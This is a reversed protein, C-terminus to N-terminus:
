LRDEPDIGDVGPLIDILHGTEAACFLWDPPLTVRNRSMPDTTHQWTRGDRSAYIGGGQTEGLREPASMALGPRACIAAIPQLQGISRQPLGCDVNAPRWRVDAQSLDLVHVGTGHTAALVLGDMFAIDRCSEGNWSDFHPIVAPEEDEGTVPYEFCGPTNEAGGPLRIGAWIRARGAHMQTRLVRFMRKEQGRPGISRYSEGLGDRASHFLGRQDRAVMVSFRHASGPPNPATAIAWVAADDHESEVTVRRWNKETGPTMERLGDACALLLTPRDDRLLFDVDHVQSAVNFRLLLNWSEGCDRSLLITGGTVNGAADSRRTVVAVLGQMRAADHWNGPTAILVPAEGDFQWLREWGGGDNISRYIADKHAAYWVGQEFNDCALSPCPESPTEVAELVPDEGYLIASENRLVQGVHWTRLAAGFAWGTGGHGIPSLMTDLARVLRARLAEPDALPDAALRLHVRIPKLRAWRTKIQAGLPRRTELHAAVTRRIEENAAELFTERTPPAAADAPHPVLDILVGGPVAHRWRDTPNQTLARAIGPTQTALACYDDATVARGGASYLLPARALANEIDEAERGGSASEPNTVTVGSRDMELRSLAGAPLNGAEGGGIWYWARIEEDAPPIDAPVQAARDLDGLADVSRMSPAFQVLGTQRDVRYSQLVPGTPDFADVQQWIVFSRAGWQRAVGNGPPVDGLMSVGIEPNTVGPFSGVVPGRALTFADGSRGSAVGLLEGEIRTAHIAEVRGSLQGPELILPQTTAFRVGNATEALVGTGLPLSLRGNGAARSVEITARAASAPQVHMGVMRFFEHYAHGPMRNARWILAETMFAFLEVLTRGPDAVSFDTWEPCQARVRAEAERMLDDFNRMDLPIPDTTM